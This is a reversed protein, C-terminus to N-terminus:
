PAVPTAPPLDLGREAMVTRLRDPYDTIIADAGMAIMAAMDAPENVTWVAVTLGSAKAEALAEPAVDRFFPSWVTCGAAKVLQPVSGGFDDVDLGALWPSAGDKGAQVNDNNGRALTLCSTAIEPAIRQVIKLTRWDFSQITSRQALGEARLGAVVATAFAEPDLTEEPALPSLKTEVNFRVTANGSRRVLAALEALTPMATGPVARQGAFTKAYRTEPDIAGVDYRKAEELTLSRIAPTAAALYRGDPGKTIEANLRRDHAIIVVGDKTIATDFELTTVGLTLATAFAPLTNEPALGRAGRHGQLDLALAPSAAVALALAVARLM